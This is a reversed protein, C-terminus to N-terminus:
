RRSRRTALLLGGLAVTVLAFTSPEPINQFQVEFLSTDFQSAAQTLDHPRISFTDYTLSNPTTDNYTLTESGSNNLSGGAMTASIQLNTATPSISLLTFSMTFTYTTGSAYGQNGSTGGNALGGSGGNAGWNGSTGLLTSSGVIWEKLQFPNSNGLTTGMNMYMAYGAFAQSSPSGDATLRGTPTRVVALDFGQSTNASAVGTPTFVWTLNLQDGPTALTVPSNATTFYTTWWSYSSGVTGRLDGAAPVTLNASPNSFWASELDHSNNYDVGMESYPSNANNYAPYNRATNNWVNSVLVGYPAAPDSDDACVAPTLACAAIFAFILYSCRKISRGASSIPRKSDRMKM